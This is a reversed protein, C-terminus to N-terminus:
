HKLRGGYIGVEFCLTIPLDRGNTKGSCNFTSILLCLLDRVSAASLFSSTLHSQHIMLKVFAGKLLCKHLDMGFGLFAM